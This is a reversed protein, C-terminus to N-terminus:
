GINARDTEVVLDSCPLATRAGFGRHWLGPTIMLTSLFSCSGPSSRLPHASEGTRGPTVETPVSWNGCGFRTCNFGYALVLSYNSNGGLVM